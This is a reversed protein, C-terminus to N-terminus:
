LRSLANLEQPEACRWFLLRLVTVSTSDSMFASADLFKMSSCETAVFSLLTFAGLAFLVRHKIDLKCKVERSLHEASNRGPFASCLYQLLFCSLSCGRIGCHCRRHIM